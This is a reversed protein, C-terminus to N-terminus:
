VSVAFGRAKWYSNEYDVFEHHVMNGSEQFEARLQDQLQAIQHRLQVDVEDTALAISNDNVITVCINELGINEQLQGSHRNTDTPVTSSLMHSGRHGHGDSASPIDINSLKASTTHIHSRCVENLSPFRSRCIRLTALM